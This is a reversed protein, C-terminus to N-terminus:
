YKWIPLQYNKSIIDIVFDYVDKAVKLVSFVLRLFESAWELFKLVRTLTKENVLVGFIKAKQSTKQKKLVKKTMYNFYILCDFPMVAWTLYM